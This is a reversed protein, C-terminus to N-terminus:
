SSTTPVVFCERQIGAHTRGNPVLLAHEPGIACTCYDSHCPACVLAQANVTTRICPSLVPKHMYSYLTVPRRHVVGGGRVTRQGVQPLVENAGCAALVIIERMPDAAAAAAAAAATGPYPGGQLHTMMCCFCSQAHHVGSFMTNLVHSGYLRPAVAQRMKRQAAPRTTPMTAALTIMCLLRCVAQYLQQVSGHKRWEFGGAAWRSGSCCQGQPRCGEPGHICSLFQDGCWCSLLGSSRMVAMCTFLHQQLVNPKTSVQILGSAHM